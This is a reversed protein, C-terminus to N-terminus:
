GIDQSHRVQGATHEQVGLEERRPAHSRLDRGLMARGDEPRSCVQDDKVVDDFALKLKADVTFTSFIQREFGALNDEKRAVAQM